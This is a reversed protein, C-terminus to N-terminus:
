YISTGTVWVQKVPIVLLFSIALEYNNESRYWPVLACGWVILFLLFIDTKFTWRINVNLNDYLDFLRKHM